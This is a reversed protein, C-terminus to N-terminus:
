YSNKDLYEDLKERNIMISNNIRVRFGLRTNKLLERAKTDGLGMYKAFENISLMKKTKLRELEAKEKEAEQNALMMDMISQMKEENGDVIIGNVSELNRM